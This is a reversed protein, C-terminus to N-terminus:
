MYLVTLFTKLKSKFISLSHTETLYNQLTNWNIYGMIGLPKKLVHIHFLQTFQLGSLLYLSSSHVM